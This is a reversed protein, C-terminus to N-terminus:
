SRAFSMESPLYPFCVTLNTLSTEGSPLFVRKLISLSLSPSFTKFEIMVEADPIIKQITKECTQRLVPMNKEDPKSFIISFSVKNGEVKLDQVMNLAVINDGEPFYLVGKLAELIKDNM